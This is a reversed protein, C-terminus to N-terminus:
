YAEDNGIKPLRYTFKKLNVGAQNAAYANIKSM